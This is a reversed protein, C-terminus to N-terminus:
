AHLRDERAEEQADEAHLFIRGLALSPAAILALWSATWIIVVAHSPADWAPGLATGVGLFEVAAIGAILWLRQWMPPSTRLFFWAALVLVSYDLEHFHFTVLATAVLGATFVMHVDRKRRYAVVVASVGFMAWLAVTFPGLGFFNILTSVTHAPDSQNQQLANLWASIGNGGLAIAFIAAMVVCGGAWGAIVRVRGSALLAAPLMWM